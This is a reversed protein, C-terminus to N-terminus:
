PLSRTGKDVPNEDIGTHTIWGDGPYLEKSIALNLSGPSFARYEPGKYLSRTKNEEKASAEEEVGAVGLELGRTGIAM